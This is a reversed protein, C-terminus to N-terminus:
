VPRSRERPAESPNNVSLLALMVFVIDSHNSYAIYMPQWTEAFKAKYRRLGEFSYVASGFRYVLNAIRERLFSQSHVGVNALPCTGLNFTAAGENKAYDILHVFLVDMVGKPAAKTYRMLDVGVQNQSRSEVLSAFAVPNGDGDSLVAIPGHRLYDPKFYGLSFGGEDRGALWEDSITRLQGLWDADFPPEVVDFTFGARETQHVVSRLNQRKKGALSFEAVDVHAEEGLKFFNYGFEHVSMAIAESVEYFVPWYGLEDAATIFAALAAQFDSARGSPDGMVIAKDHTLRFQVVVTDREAQGRFFFVRKDGLFVLDSYQNDGWDRLVAEVRAENVPEGLLQQRGRLFRALALVGGAIVVIAAFGMVWWHVSPAWFLSTESTPYRRALSPVQVAGICMYSIILGGWILGDVKRAEWEYIFQRRYFQPKILAVAVILLGLVVLPAVYRYFFLMYLWAAALVLLTGAYARRVKNAVGRASILVLFGLIINPVQSVLHYTLPWPALRHLFPQRLLLGPMTGALVMMVGTVYLLVTVVWHALAM